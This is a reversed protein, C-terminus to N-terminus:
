GGVLHHHGAGAIFCVDSVQGHGDGDHVPLLQFTVVLGGYQGGQGFLHGAEEGGATADHSVAHRGACGSAHAQAADAAAGRGAQQHEDVAVRLVHSQHAM